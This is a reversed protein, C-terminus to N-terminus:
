YNGIDISDLISPDYSIEFSNNKLIAYQNGTQKAFRVNHTILLMTTGSEALSKIILLVESILSPDLGSTPEDLLLILPDMALARAIAVRQREGGSLSSPYQSAKSALSVKDLEIMAVDSAENKSLKKVLRLSLEVNQLATLHPFLNHEQFIVGIKGFLKKPYLTNPYITEDEISVSGGDFGILGCIIRVLTTKGGGSPGCLALVKGKEIGFSINKFLLRIGFNKDLKEIQLVKM